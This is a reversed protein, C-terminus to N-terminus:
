ASFAPPRGSRPLDHLGGLGQEEFRKLWRRVAGPSTRLRRAIEKNEVGDAGWLLMQARQKLASAHPVQPDFGRPIEERARETRTPLPHSDARWRQLEATLGEFPIVLQSSRYESCSVIEEVGENGVAASSLDLSRLNSLFPSSTLAIVGADGVDDGLTLDRLALLGPWSALRGVDDVGRRISLSVFPVTEVLDDGTEWLREWPLEINPLGRDWGCIEVPHLGWDRAWAVEEEVLLRHAQSALLARRDDGDLELGREEDETDLAAIEIHLRILRGRPDGRDDYWRALCLRPEDEDPFARISAPFDSPIM